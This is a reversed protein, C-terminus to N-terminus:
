LRPKPFIGAPFKDHYPEKAQYMKLRVQLDAQQADPAIALSMKQTKVAEDFLGVEAQAAALTDLFSWDKDNTRKCAQKALEFARQGNRFKSDRCTALFWALGNIAELDDSDLKLAKEFDELAAQNQDFKSRCDGRLLLASVNTPDLKVAQDFDDLAARYDDRASHAQGRDLLLASERPLYRLAQTFDTIAREINGLRSHARGRLWLADGDEPTEALYRTCDEVVKEYDQMDYRCAARRYYADAFTPKLRIAEDFCDIATKFSSQASKPDRSELKHANSLWSNGFNYWIEPDDRAIKLARDFDIIAKGHLKLKEYALGRNNLAWYAKPDDKLEATYEAIATRFDGKAYAADGLEFHDEAFVALSIQLLGLTTLLVKLLKSMM